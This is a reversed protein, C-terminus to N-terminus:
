WRRSFFAVRNKKPPPPPPSCTGSKLGSGLRTIQSARCVRAPHPPNQDVLIADFFAFNLALTTWFAFNESARRFARPHRPPILPPPGLVQCLIKTFIQDQYLCLGVRRSGGCLPAASEIADRMGGPSPKNSFPDHTQPTTAQPNPTKRSRPTATLCKNSFM